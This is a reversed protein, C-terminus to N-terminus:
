EIAADARSLLGGAGCADRLLPLYELQDVGGLCRFDAAFALAAFTLFVGPCLRGERLGALIPAPRLALGTHPGRLSEGTLRLPEFVQAGPPGHSTTFVAMAPLVG